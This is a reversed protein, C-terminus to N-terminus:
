IPEGFKDVLVGGVVSADSQEAIKGCAKNLRKENTGEPAEASGTCISVINACTGAPVKIWANAMNDETASGQCSSGIAKIACDNKGAKVMGACRETSAANAVPAAAMLATALISTALTASLATQTKAQKM